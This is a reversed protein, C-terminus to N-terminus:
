KVNASKFIKASIVWGKLFPLFFFLSFFSFLFLFLPFFGVLTKLTHTRLYGCTVPLKYAYPIVSQGDVSSLLPLKSHLCPIFFFFFVWVVWLYM